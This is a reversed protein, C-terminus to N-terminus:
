LINRRSGLTTKGNFSLSMLHCKASQHKVILQAMSWREKDTLTPATPMITKNWVHHFTAGSKLDTILVVVNNDGLQATMDVSTYVTEM